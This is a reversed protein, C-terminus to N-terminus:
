TSTNAGGCAEFWVVFGSTSVLFYWFRGNETIKAGNATGFPERKPVYLGAGGFM